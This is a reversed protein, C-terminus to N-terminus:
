EGPRLTACEFVGGATNGEHAQFRATIRERDRTLEEPVAYEVEFFEGPKDRNLSQTAIVEGNVLIDFTRPPIDTGWYTCVLTMAEDPLVKLEWSFWGDHAHRWGKDLHPGSAMKEGQLDHAQESDENNALVRDIVRAERRREAEEAAVIERHRPSGQETIVWYVGYREGVVRNLPIFTMEPDHGRTRFTLSEGEAPEIWSGLDSIDALFHRPKDTLGALVLPGYMVAALEPDDPMAHAHLAMPLNIEVTDGDQWTRDLALYSTPKAEVAAPEGNLRVQAGQMAWYPVRVHISLRVPQEAHVILRTAEEDPFTTVQELRVGKEAWDVKSPVFLNVYLGEDDRFYISDGLKAFSEIGTGYCCWFSDYPTGYTKTHGTALPLFYILMGTESHQTGLIGNLYAREYFDAYKPDGTWELLQRTLKLMNYTTCSEQNQAALTKALKRPDPWHEAQNSGGTAYSRKNVVRDWFFLAATRYREDGTLEWHRAAGIVEPIHTNAHLRSLNDHELALPGLFGARDFTHALELHEPDGTVSYLNHLVESMGGFEVTLLRDIEWTSLREMRRGFYGAMGQLVDLAQDNGCLRYMDFMGAMIKHIVYYAAWPVNDLAELRDWFSEPFASLYGGGLAEQCKALEAVMGDAKAKLEEDGTGAFMLACASLYHGVFHGRVEVQPAEWGGLPEEPTPLGANARFARLLRDSDFGRLYRRNAEQALKCPGDTLRVDRLGFAQLALPQATM